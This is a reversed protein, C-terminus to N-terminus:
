LISQIYFYLIKIFIGYFKKLAIIPLNKLNDESRVESNFYRNFYMIEIYIKNSLILSGQCLSGTNLSEFALICRIQM